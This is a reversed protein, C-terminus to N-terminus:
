AYGFIIGQDGAGQEVAEISNNSVGQSIEESQQSILLIVECSENNSADMGTEIDSYGINIACDRAIKEFDIDFKNEMIIEGGIVIVSKRNGNNTDDLGKVFVEVAVRANADCDLCADLISDSIYDCLKDPHGSTVSESTFLYSM